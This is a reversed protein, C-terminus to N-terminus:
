EMLKMRNASTNESDRERRFVPSDIGDNDVSTPTAEKRHQQKYAAIKAEVKKATESNNDIEHKITKGLEVTLETKQLKEIGLEKEALDGEIERHLDENSALIENDIKLSTAAQLIELKSNAIDARGHLRELESELRRLELEIIHQQASSSSEHIRLKRDYDKEVESIRKKVGEIEDALCTQEALSNEVSNGNSTGPQSAGFFLKTIFKVIGM